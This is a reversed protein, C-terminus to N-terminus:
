PGYKRVRGNATVEFINGQFLKNAYDFADAEKKFTEGEGIPLVRSGILAVARYGDQTEEIGLHQTPNFKFRALLQGTLENVTVGFLSEGIISNAASLVKEDTDTLAIYRCVPTHGKGTKGSSDQESM